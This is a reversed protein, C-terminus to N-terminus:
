PGTVPEPEALPGGEMMRRRRTNLETQLERGAKPSPRSFFVQGLCTLTLLLFLLFFAVCYNRLRLTIDPTFAPFHASAPTFATTPAPTPPVDSALLSAHTPDLAPAPFYIAFGSILWCDM